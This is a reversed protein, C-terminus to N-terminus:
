AHIILGLSLAIAAQHLFQDFGVAVFFDHPRQEAWLKATMKSTFYDTVFHALANVAIFITITQLPIGLDGWLLLYSAAAFVLTYTGIHKLLAVVNKSKNTAQWHTQIVFDGLWHAALLFIFEFLLM